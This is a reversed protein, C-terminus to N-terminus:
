PTTCNKGTPCNAERLEACAQNLQATKSAGDPLALVVGLDIGALKRMTFNASLIQQTQEINDYSDIQPDDCPDHPTCTSFENPDCTECGQIRAEARPKGAAPGGLTGGVVCQNTPADFTITTGRISSVARTATYWRHTRFLNGNALGPWETYDYTAQPTAIRPCVSPETHAVPPDPHTGDIPAGGRPVYFTTVGLSGDEDSDIWTARNTVTVTFPPVAPPRGPCTCQAGVAVGVCQRCPPWAGAPNLLNLGSITTVEPEIYSGGPVVGVLSGTITPFTANIGPRGWVQNSDFQAHAASLATDCLTPSEGGCPVTRITVAGNAAVAHHRLTWGRVIVGGSPSGEIVQASGDETMIPPFSFATDVVVGYSGALDCVCTPGTAGAPTISRYGGPCACTYRAPPTTNTCTGAGCPNTPTCENIDVCGSAGRGNGTYGAPCTCVYDGTAASNPTPDVCTAVPACPNANCENTDAVCVGDVLRHPPQGV